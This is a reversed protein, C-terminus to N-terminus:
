KHATDASKTIKGPVVRARDPPFRSLPHPLGKGVPPRISLSKPLSRVADQDVSAQRDDVRLPPLLRHGPHPVAHFIHQDVVALEIVGILQAPLKPLQAEGKLRLRVGLHQM